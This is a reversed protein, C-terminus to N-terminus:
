EKLLGEPLRVPPLAQVLTQLSQNAKEAFSPLTATMESTMEKFLRREELPISPEMTRKAAAEIMKLVTMREVHLHDLQQQVTDFYRNIAVRRQELEEMKLRFSADILKDAVRAQERVREMEIKLRKSELRYALTKAYADALPGFPNFTQLVKVWVPGDPGPPVAKVEDIRLKSQPKQEESM